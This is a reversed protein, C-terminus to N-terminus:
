VDSVEFRSVSCFFVFLSLVFRLVFCDACIWIVVVRVACLVFIVVMCDVYLESIEFRSDLIDVSCILILCSWFFKCSFMDFLM